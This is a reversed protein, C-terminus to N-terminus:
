PLAFVFIANGAAIAVHQKGDVGFSMANARVESGLQFHWLPAGTAADLAYFDGEPTGGFVLGGATSLLGAVPPSHLKFEWRLAGTLVDLARVAGWRQDVEVHRVGGGIYPEGRTYTAEGKFYTTGSEGAAQYFLKTLPSYSPSWWNAASGVAPYLLVGEITPGPKAVTIPRGTRPDLKEAWTQKVFPVGSIFEGTERDLVYYFGNRNATTVLKRARGGVVGDVLVPIQNADWDHTDGPTFQFHWKIKGDKPDIALLACSYLNDGPRVDANWAPGPNGTGWYLLNLSPDYSGTLWTPAGGRKWGEGGWTDSGPEGPAPVTYTRWVRKGTAPDYADIFGRAGHDGGAVGVVIRGDVALPASTVYYNQNYDDVVVDWRVAGSKADLAVLHAAVTGVYVTDDLIAVGRNVRTLPRPPVAARYTWVPRGTRADLATVASGPETVYMLGNAVIPSTQVTGTPQQVQYIWAPRLQKVNATTIQNLRSFRHSAYNGSYTLWDAPADDARVIRDYPVQAAAPVAALAALLVIFVRVIM